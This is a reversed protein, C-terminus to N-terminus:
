SRKSKGGIRLREAARSSRAALAGLTTGVTRAVDILLSEGPPVTGRRTSRSRSSKKGRAASKLKAPRSPQQRKAPM